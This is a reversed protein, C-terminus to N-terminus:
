YLIHGGIDVSHCLLFTCIVSKLNDINVKIFYSSFLSLSLDLINILQPFLGWIIFPPWYIHFASLSIRSPSDDPQITRILGICSQGDQSNFQTVSNGCHFIFQGLHALAMCSAQNNGTHVLQTTWPIRLVQHRSLSQFLNYVRLIARLITRILISFGVGAPGPPQPGQITRQYGGPFQLVSYSFCGGEFNTISQFSSKSDRLKTGSIDGNSHQALITCLPINYLIHVVGPDKLIPHMSSLFTKGQFKPSDKSPASSTAEPPKWLGHVSNHGNQPWFQSLHAWKHNPPQHVEGRAGKPRM